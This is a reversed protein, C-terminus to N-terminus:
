SRGAEKAIVAKIRSLIKPREEEYAPTLFPRARLGNRAIARAIPFVSEPPLKKRKCWRAIVALPPFKGGPGHKYGIQEM